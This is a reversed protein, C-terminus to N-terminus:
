LILFVLLASPAQGTMAALFGSGCPRGAIFTM